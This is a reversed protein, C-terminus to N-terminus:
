LCVVSVFDGYRMPMVRLVDMNTPDGPEREARECLVPQTSASCVCVTLPPVLITEPNGFQPRGDQGGRFYGRGRNGEQLVYHRGVTHMYGARPTGPVPPWRGDATQMYGVANTSIYGGGGGPMSQVDDSRRICVTGPGASCVAGQEVRQNHAELARETNVWGVTLFLAAAVMSAVAMGRSGIGWGTAFDRPSVGRVWARAANLGCAVCLHGCRRDTRHIGTSTEM